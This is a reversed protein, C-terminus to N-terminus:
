NFKSKLDVLKSKLKAYSTHHEDILRDIAKPTQPRIVSANDFKKMSKQTVSLASPPRVPTGRGDRKAFTNLNMNSGSWNGGTFLGHNQEKIESSMYDRSSVSTLKLMKIEQRMREMESDRKSGTDLRAKNARFADDLDKMKKDLKEALISEKITNESLDKKMSVLKRKGEMGDYEFLDDEFLERKLRAIQCRVRNHDIKINQAERVVAGIESNGFGDILKDFLEEISRTELGMESIKEELIRIKEPDFTQGMKANEATLYENENQLEGITTLNQDEGQRMRDVHEEFVEVEM